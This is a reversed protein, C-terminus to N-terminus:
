GLLTVGGCEKRVPSQGSEAETASGVSAFPIMVQPRKHHGRESLTLNRLSMRTHVQSGKIASYHGVLHCLGLKTHRFNSHSSLVYSQGREKVAGCGWHINQSTLPLTMGQGLTLIGPGRLASTVSVVKKERALFSCPPM